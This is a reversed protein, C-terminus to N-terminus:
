EHSRAHHRDGLLPGQHDLGPGNTAERGGRKHTAPQCVKQRRQALACGKQHRPKLGRQRGAGKGERAPRNPNGPHPKERHRLRYQLLNAPRLPGGQGGRSAHQTPTIPSRGKYGLRKFSKNNNNNNNAAAAAADGAALLSRAAPGMMIGLQCLPPPGVVQRRRLWSSRVPVTVISLLLLKLRRPYLPLLGM